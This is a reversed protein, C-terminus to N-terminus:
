AAFTLFELAVGRAIEQEAVEYIARSTPGDIAAEGCNECVLAPVSELVVVSRDRRFTIETHGQMMAGRCLPCLEESM